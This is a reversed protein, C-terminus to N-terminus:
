YHNEESPKWGIASFTPVFFVRTGIEAYEDAMKTLRYFEEEDFTELHSLDELLLDWEAQYSEITQPIKWEGGMVTTQINELKAQYFRHGLERGLLPHGGRQQLSEIQWNCLTELDSPYDIRGGFDPESFAILAGRPKLCRILEKLFPKLPTIWLLVFHCYVLDFTQDSFPTSFGNGFIFNQQSQEKSAFQIADQDIDIGIVTARPFVQQIESLIAGTGCGVELILPNQPLKILSLLYQRMSFTWAAQRKYHQHLNELSRM